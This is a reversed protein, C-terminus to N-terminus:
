DRPFLVLGTSFTGALFHHPDIAIRQPNAFEQRPHTLHLPATRGVLSRTQLMDIRLINRIQSIRYVFTISIGNM